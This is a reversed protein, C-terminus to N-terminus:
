AYRRAQETAELWIGREMLDAAMDSFSALLEADIPEARAAAVRRLAAEVPLGEALADLLDATRATIELLEISGDRARYVCVCAEGQRPEGDRHVIWRTRVVRHAPSLRARAFMDFTADARDSAIVPDDANSVACSAWELRALDLSWPPGGPPHAELFRLM